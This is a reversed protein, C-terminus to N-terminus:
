VIKAASARILQHIVVQKTEAIMNYFEFETSYNEPFTIQGDEGPVLLQQTALDIYSAQGAILEKSYASVGPLQLKEGYGGNENAFYEILWSVVLSKARKNYILTEFTAKRKIITDGLTVDSIEVVIDYDFNHQM